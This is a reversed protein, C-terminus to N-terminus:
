KPNRTRLSLGFEFGQNFEIGGRSVAGYPNQFVTGSPAHQGVAQGIRFPTAPGNYFRRAIDRYKELGDAPTM